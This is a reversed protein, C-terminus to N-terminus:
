NGNKYNGIAKVLSKFPEDVPGPSKTIAEKDKSVKAIVESFM